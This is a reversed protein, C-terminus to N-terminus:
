VDHSERQGGPLNRREHKHRRGPRLQLKAPHHLRFALPHRRRPPSSPPRTPQKSHDTQRNPRPERHRGCSPHAHHALPPPAHNNSPHSHITPVDQLSSLTGSRQARSTVQQVIRHLTIRHDHVSSHSLFHLAPTPLTPVTPISTCSKRLASCVVVPRFRISPNRLSSLEPVQLLEIHNTSTTSGLQQPHSYQFSDVKYLGDSGCM